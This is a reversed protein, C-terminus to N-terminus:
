KSSTKSKPKKVEKSAKSTSAIAPENIVQEEVLPQKGSKMDSAQQKYKEQNCNKWATGLLNGIVGFTADQNQNKIIPRMESCFLQYGTATRKAGGLADSKKGKSKKPQSSSSSDSEESESPVYDKMESSYRDKDENAMLIYPQKDKESLSNWTEGLKSVIEKASLNPNNKKIEVRKDGCFFIYSSKGRKPAIPDKKAKKSKKEKKPQFDDILKILKQKFVNENASDADFVTLINKINTQVFEVLLSKQSVTSSM